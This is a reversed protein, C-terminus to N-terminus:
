KKPFLHDFDVYERLDMAAMPKPPVSRSLAVTTQSQNGLVMGGAVPWSSCFSM